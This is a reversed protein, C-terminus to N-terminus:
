FVEGSELFVRTEDRRSTVNFATGTVMVTLDQTSVYFRNGDLHSVNFFAEGEIRNEENWNTPLEERVNKLGDKERLLEFMEELGADSSTRDIYKRYLIKIRNERSM